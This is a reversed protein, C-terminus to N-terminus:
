PAEGTRSARRIVIFTPDLGASCLVAGAPGPAVVTLATLVRVAADRM